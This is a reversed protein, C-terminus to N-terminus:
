LMDEIIKTGVKVGYGIRREKRGFLKGDVVEGAYKRLGVIELQLDKRLEHSFTTVLVNAELDKKASRRGYNSSGILTLFPTSPYSLIDNTDNENPDAMPSGTLPIRIASTLSPTLWIGLYRTLLTPFSLPFPRVKLTTHGDMENGNECSLILRGRGRRRRRLRKKMSSNKYTRILQLSISQFGGLVLSGMRRRLSKRTLVQDLKSHIPRVEPSATVIRVSARSDLVKEKYAPQVSFYGSTWDITTKAGGPATALSNATRFVAPVVLATEQDISFPGMQLVPRLSTDFVRSAAHSPPLTSSLAEISKAAWHKTLSALADHAAAKFDPILTSPALPSPAANSDPWSISISPNLSTTDTATVRFSYSSITRLLHTFYNALPPNSLFEIYRDQRNSFYDGSLNARYM